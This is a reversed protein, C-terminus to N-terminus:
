ARYWWKEKALLVLEDAYKVTHTLQGEGRFDGFGELAKKTLYKSYL